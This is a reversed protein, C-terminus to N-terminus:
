FDAATLQSLRKLRSSIPPHLDLIGSRIRNELRYSLPPTGGMWYKPDMTADSPRVISFAAVAVATRMDESPIDAAENSLTQLASGVASPDGTVAAAAQDAAYERQRAFVSVFPQSLLWFFAGVLDYLTYSTPRHEEDSEFDPRWTMLTHSIMSPISVVTCVFADRNVVHALEHALVAELEADTLASLTSTSIVLTSRQRSLGSVSAHPAETDAIRIAPAPIDYQQALRHVRPALRAREESTPDRADFERAVFSDARRLEVLSAIAFLLGGIGSGLSLALESEPVVTSDVVISVCVVSAALVISLLGLGVVAVGLLAILMQLRLAITSVTRTGEM